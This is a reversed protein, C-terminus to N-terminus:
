PLAYTTRPGAIAHTAYGGSGPLTAAVRAGPPLSPERSEVVVGAVEFGPIFPPTPKVQHAGATFLVDPFNIAAAAVEIRVEGEALPPDHPYCACLWESRDLIKRWRGATPM